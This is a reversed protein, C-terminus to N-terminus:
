LQKTSTSETGTADNTFVTRVIKLDPSPLGITSFDVSSDGMCAALIEYVAINIALRTPLTWQIPM